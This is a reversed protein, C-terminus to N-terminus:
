DNEKFEKSLSQLRADENNVPQGLIVNEEVDELVPPLEGIDFTGVVSSM